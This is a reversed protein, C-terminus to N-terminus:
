GPPQGTQFTISACLATTVLNGATKSFGSAFLGATYMTGPSLGPSFVIGQNGSSDPQNVQIFAIPSGVTYLPMANRWFGIWANNQSPVAGQPLAYQFMISNTTVGGIGLSPAFYKIQKPDWSAPIM